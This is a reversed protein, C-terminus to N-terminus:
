KRKKEKKINSEKEAKRKKNKKEEQPWFALEVASSKFFIAQPAEYAKPQRGQFFSPLLAQWV